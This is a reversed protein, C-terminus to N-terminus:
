YMSQIMEAPRSLNEVLEGLKKLSVPKELFEDVPTQPLVSRFEEISIEFASTLIIKVGSNLERVKRALQFGTMGPMREDSIVFAYENPSYRFNEFAIEPNSFAHVNYGQQSLYSSFVSLIDEDDDVFMILAKKAVHEQTMLSNQYFTTYVPCSNITPIVGFM